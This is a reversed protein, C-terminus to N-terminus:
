INTPPTTGAPVVFFTSTITNAQPNFNTQEHVELTGAALAALLSAPVNPTLTSLATSLVLVREMTLSNLTQAGAPAAIALLGLILAVTLAGGFSRLLKM